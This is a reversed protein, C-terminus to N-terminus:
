RGSSAPMPRAAASIGPSCRRSRTTPRTPTRRWSPRPWRSGAPPATAATPRWTASASRRSRISRTARRRARRRHPDAERGSRARAHPVFLEAHRRDGRHVGRLDRPQLQARHRHARGERLDGGLADHAGRARRHAQRRQPQLDLSSASRRRCRRRRPRRGDGARQAPVALDRAPAAVTGAVIGTAASAKIFNRRTFKAMSSDGEAGRAERAGDVAFRLFPSGTPGRLIIRGSASKAKIRRASQSM